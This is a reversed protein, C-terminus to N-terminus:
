KLSADFRAMLLTTLLKERILLTYIGLYMNGKDLHKNTPILKRNVKIGKYITINAVPVPSLQHCKNNGNENMQKNKNVTPMPNIKDVMDTKKLSM